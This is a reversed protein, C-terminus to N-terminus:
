YERGCAGKDTYMAPLVYRLSGMVCLICCLVAMWMEGAYYM